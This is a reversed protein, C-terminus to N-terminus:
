PHFLHTELFSTRPFGRRQSCKTLLSLRLYIDTFCSLWKLISSMLFTIVSTRQVMRLRHSSQSRIVGHASLNPRLSITLIKELLRPIVPIRFQSIIVISNSTAILVHPIDLHPSAKLIKSRLRPTPQLRVASVPNPTPSGSCEPSYKTLSQPVIEVNRTHSPRTSSTLQQGTPTVLYRLHRDQCLFSHWVLTNLTPIKSTAIFTKFEERCLRRLTMSSSLGGPLLLVPLLCLTRSSAESPLHTISLATLPITLLLLLTVLYIFYSPVVPYGRNSM